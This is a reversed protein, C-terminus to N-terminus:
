LSTLVNLVLEVANEKYYINDGDYINNSKVKTVMEEIKEFNFPVNFVNGGVERGKQRDGVNIFYKNFSAAESIGSSTNGIVFFCHRMCSLYAMSGLNEFIFLRQGEIEVFSKYMERFHIANTDANPMTIILQFQQTLYRIVQEIVKIHLLNIVPNVTEPHFTMLVTPISLDITYNKKFHSISYYEKKLLNDLSLIGVAYVNKESRILEKVRKACKETSTFHIASAKTICDRYIDDIAGESIDGGYFHAYRVGFPVGAYVAAFMEYRDGLCLVIDFDNSHLNWFAAFKMMVIAVNTSISEPDDSDLLGFIKHHVHFGETEIETITRGHSNSLHTGFAIISISFESNIVIKKLLPSYVGFDARSSTLVGIRVM